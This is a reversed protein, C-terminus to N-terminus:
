GKSRFIQSGMKRQISRDDSSIGSGLPNFDKTENVWVPSNNYLKITITSDKKSRFIPCTRTNPNLLALDDKSLTFRREPDMLERVNHLFFVFEAQLAGGKTMTMLSFKYSRHTGEFLGERNEFDFLSVLAGNEMLSAFFDKYTYDTAIGSPVVIAAEDRKM